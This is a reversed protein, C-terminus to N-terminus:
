SGGAVVGAGGISSACRYEIQLTRPFIRYAVEGNVDGSLVTVADSSGGAVFGITVSYTFGFTRHPIIAVCGIMPEKVKVGWQRWQVPLTSMPTEVGAKVLAWNVFAVQWPYNETINPSTLGTSSIYSLIKSNGPSLGTKRVGVEARAFELWVPQRGSVIIDSASVIEGQSKGTEQRNLKTLEVAALRADDRDKSEKALKELTVLVRSTLRANKEQLLSIQYSAAAAIDEKNKEERNVAVEKAISALLTCLALALAVRGRRTIKRWWPSRENDWTHGAIGVIATLCALAAQLINLVIVGMDTVGVTLM